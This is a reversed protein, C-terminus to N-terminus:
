RQWVRIYDIEFSSPFSTGNPSGAWGGVSTNAVLYMPVKPVINADNLTRVKKGDIYWSLSTSTWELGFTHFDQNFNPGKYTQGTQKHNSVTGYHLNSHVENPNFNPHEMIDIEPPWSLSSPEMWLSSWVGKGPATKMRAEVYGYTFDFTSKNGNWPGTALSAGSYGFNRNQEAVFTNEKKATLKATGNSVTVNNPKYVQLEEANQGTCGPRTAYHCEPWVGRNVSSSNFEDSFIM